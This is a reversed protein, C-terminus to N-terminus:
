ESSEREGWIFVHEDPLDLSRLLQWMEAQNDKKYGLKAADFAIARKEAATLDAGSEIVQYQITRNIKAYKENSIKADFERQRVLNRFARRTVVDGNPLEYNKGGNIPKAGLPNERRGGTGPREIGKPPGPKKRAM